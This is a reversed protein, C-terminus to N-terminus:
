KCVLKLNFTGMSMYTEPEYFLMKVVVNQGASVPANMHVSRLYEGIKVIGSEGLINGNEDYIRTKMWAPNKELNTLCLVLEDNEIHPEGFVKFSFGEMEMIQYSPEDINEPEGLVAGADFDPASFPAIYISSEAASANNKMKFAVIGLVTLMVLFVAALGGLICKENKSM